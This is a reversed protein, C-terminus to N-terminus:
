LHIKKCFYNVAEKQLFSWRLYKVPNQIRRQNRRCINSILSDTLKVQRPCKPWYSPSVFKVQSQTQVLFYDIFFSYKLSFNLETLKTAQPRRVEHLFLLVSDTFFYSWLSMGVQKKNTM